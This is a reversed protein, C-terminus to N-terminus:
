RRVRVRAPARRSMPADVSQGLRDVREVLCLQDTLLTRPAADVVDLQGREPPDGPEVVLPKVASEVVDRGDLEFGRIKARRLGVLRNSDLSSLRWRVWPPDDGGLIEAATSVRGDLRTSIAVAPGM